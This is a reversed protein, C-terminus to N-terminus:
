KKRPPAEQLTGAMVRKYNDCPKYVFKTAPPATSEASTSVSSSASLIESTKVPVPQIEPGLREFLSDNAKKKEVTNGAADM